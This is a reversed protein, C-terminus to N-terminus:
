LRNEITRLRKELATLRANYDKEMRQMKLIALNYLNDYAISYFKPYFKYDEDGGRSVMYNYEVNAINYKDPSIGIMEFADEVDQASFGICIQGNKDSYRYKYSKLQIIDFLKLLSSVDQELDDSFKKVKEDSYTEINGNVLIRGYQILNIYRGSLRLDTLNSSIDVQNGTTTAGTTSYVIDSASPKYQIMNYGSNLCLLSDSHLGSVYANSFYKTPSGIVLATSSPLLTVGNLDLTFTSGSFSLSSHIHSSAAYKASLATGGEYITTGYIAPFPAGSTGCYVTGALPVFDGSSTMGVSYTTSGGPPYLCYHTHSSSAYSHTHNIAAAGIEALTWSVDASGNFSKGTSGITLTRSTQLTTASSANGLLAGVFTPAIINNSSNVEGNTVNITFGWDTSNATRASNFGYFGITNSAGGGFNWVDGDKNIGWLYPDYRTGDQVIPSTFVIPSNTQTKGSIWTGGTSTYQNNKTTHIVAGTLTGGSM